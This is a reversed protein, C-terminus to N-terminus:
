GAPARVKLGQNLVLTSISDPMDNRIFSISSAKRNGVLLLYWGRYHCSFREASEGIKLTTDEGGNLGGLRIDYRESSKHNENLGLENFREVSLEEVNVGGKKRLEGSKVGV